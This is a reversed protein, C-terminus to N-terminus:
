LLSCTSPEATIVSPTVRSYTELFIQICFLKTKKKISLGEFGVRYIEHSNAMNIVASNLNFTVWPAMFLHFLLCSIIYTYLLTPDAKYLFPARAYAVLHIFKISPLVLWDCFYPYQILGNTHPTKPLRTRPALFIHNQNVWVHIYFPLNNDLPCQTGNEPSQNCM